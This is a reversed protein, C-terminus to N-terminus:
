SGRVDVYLTLRDGPHIYKKGGIQQNWGLIDEISLNFKDAIRALSDGQRVRYGLKKLMPPRLSTDISSVNIPAATWIVLTEGVFIPDRSVKGNWDALQRVSTNYRRALEWFSDGVKVRYETRVGAGTKIKGALRQASSLSYSEPSALATPILLTDGARIQNGKLGNVQKIVDVGTNFRNGIRILSDGPQITYRNWQVRQSPDLNELAATFNDARPVPLVLEHPGAPDTAWRSYGPNLRYLQDIDLEALQAAQSLDLQGYTNVAVFHPADAVPSLPLGYHDARRVVEALALFRPVYNRTETPLKLSWFDTARGRERNYQEAEELRRQGGNYAALAKLWDGDFARNLKRLYDLAAMTSARVDRRGDYWWNQELGLDGATGPIIQWLGAARGHSYAFPDYASEMIPLLAFELPMNRREVEQVVFYLYPEARASVRGMYKPNRQYWDREASVRRNDPIQLQMQSGIRQWLDDGPPQDTNASALLPMLLISSILHVLPRLGKNKIM